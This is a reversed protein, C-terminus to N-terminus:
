PQDGHPHEHAAEPPKKESEPPAEGKQQIVAQLRSESDLLFNAATVVVEGEELGDKVEYYDKVKAGLQVARPHFREGADKVFVYAQNNSFLVATDPVALQEGLSTLIRVNLYTDPRLLGKPDPVEARVRITRTPANLVPSISSITGRFVEGPISPAEAEIKQGPKLGTVEYEFVEAYIWVKGQPLILNIAQSGGRALQRIQEDTLGLLKLRTESSKVLASSQEVFGEYSSNKLQQKALLAQRYEEIAAFLEPDYAVRGTARIDRSMPQRSVTATTVGIIQQNDPSLPFSARGEVTSSNANDEDGEYVPIYDMGMEDKSPVKSTISPQMPHRYFLIKREKPASATETAATGHTRQTWWYLFAANAVLLGVIVLVLAKWNRNM